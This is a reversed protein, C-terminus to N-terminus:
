NCNWGTCTSHSYQYTGQRPTGDFVFETSSLQKGGMMIAQEVARDIAGM